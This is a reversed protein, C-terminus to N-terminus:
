YNHVTINQKKLISTVYFAYILGIFSAILIVYESYQFDIIFIMGWILAIILLDLKDIMKFKDIEKEVDDIRSNQLLDLDIDRVNIKKVKSM